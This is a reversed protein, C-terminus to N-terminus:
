FRHVLSLSYVYDRTLGDPNVDRDTLKKGYIFKVANRVNINYGASVLASMALGTTGDLKVRQDLDADYVEDRTIRYIPLLGVSFNYNTFRFNREIRIMIDTGRKLNRGVNNKQLYNQDPYEEWDSWQFQNENETLAVQIGTAFLWDSNIWSAGAIVDFSGLSTQYYMHLDAPTNGNKENSEEADSKNTPIKTGLTANLSGGAIRKLFHTYSLSIDGLGDNKGLNGRVFTYPMKVQFSNVENIAANFELTHANIKPSILAKGFYYNYEVSRLRFNVHKSYDQDPRMAGMTCFGADSCGQGYLSLAGLIGIAAIFGKM